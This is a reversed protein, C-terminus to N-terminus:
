TTLLARPENEGVQHWVKAALVNCNELLEITTFFFIRADNGVRQATQSMLNKMRREGGSTVILWVGHNSGFRAKYAPSKVYAAGPLAKYKGFSPNDHTAMDMEMLFRAKHPKGEIRLVEDMIEFYADPCVGRKLKYTKGNRNEVTVSVTDMDSRFESDPLWKELRYRSLQQISKKISLKFDVVALDHLLLSWRPERVWRIGHDQLRRQFLRLQNENEEKPAEDQYGYQGAILLAGRWGLWCVPEPIPHISRQKRTPWALYGHKFLKSLRKEMARKSSGPWFMAKLHRKALVGDNDYIVQLLRADREQFRM